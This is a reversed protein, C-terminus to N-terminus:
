ANVFEEFTVRARSPTRATTATPEPGPAKTTADDRARMERIKAEVALTLALLPDGGALEYCYEPLGHLRRQEGLQARLGDSRLRRERQLRTEM